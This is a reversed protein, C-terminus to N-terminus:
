KAIRWLEKIRYPPGTTVWIGLTRPHVNFERNGTISIRLYQLDPGYLQISKVRWIWGTVRHGDFMVRALDRGLVGCDGCHDTIAMLPKTNGTKAVYNVLDVFHAAFAARGEPTNQHVAAEATPVPIGAASPEIPKPDSGCGALAALVVLVCSIAPIGRKM